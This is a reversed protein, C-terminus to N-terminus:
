VLDEAGCGGFGVGGSAAIVCEGGLELEREEGSERETERVCVCKSDRVNM